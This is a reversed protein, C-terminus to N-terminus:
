VHRLVLLSTPTGLSSNDGAAIITRDGNSLTPGLCLGELCVGGAQEWLLTKSVAQFEEEM